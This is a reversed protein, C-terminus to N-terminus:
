WRGKTDIHERVKLTAKVAMWCTYSCYRCTRGEIVLKYISSPNKIFEKGCHPCIIIPAM